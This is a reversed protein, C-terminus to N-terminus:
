MTLSSLVLYLIQWKSLFCLFPFPQEDDVNEPVLQPKSSVVAMLSCSAGDSFLCCTLAHLTFVFHSLFSHLLTLSSSFPHFLLPTKQHATRYVESWQLMECRVPDDHGRNSEKQETAPSQFICVAHLLQPFLPSPFVHLFTRKYLIYLM